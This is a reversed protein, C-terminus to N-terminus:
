DYGELIATPAKECDWYSLTGCNKCVMDFGIPTTTIVNDKGTLLKVDEIWLMCVPCRCTPGDKLNRKLVKYAGHYDKRILCKFLNLYSM